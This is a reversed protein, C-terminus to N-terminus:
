AMDLKTAILEIAKMPIWNEHQRQALDLLPM